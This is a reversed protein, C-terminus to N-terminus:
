SVCFETSQRGGVISSLEAMSVRSVASCLWWDGFQRKSRERFVSSRRLRMEIM